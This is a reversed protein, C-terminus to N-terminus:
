RIFSLIGLRNKRLTLPKLYGKLWLTLINASNYAAFTFGYGLYFCRVLNFANLKLLRISNKSSM